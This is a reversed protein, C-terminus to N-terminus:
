LASAAIFFEDIQQETLGLNAALANLLPDDRRFEIAFEWTIQTARDQQAIMAEVDDLLNQSLLLLRVQRPTVVQPVSVAAVIDTGNWRWLSADADPIPGTYDTSVCGFGAFANLMALAAIQEEPTGDEPVDSLQHLLVAESVPNNWVTLITM